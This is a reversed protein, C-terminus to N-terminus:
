RIINRDACKLVFIKYDVRDMQVRGFKEISKLKSHKTGLM